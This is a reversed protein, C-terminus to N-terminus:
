AEDGNAAPTILESDAPVDMKDVTDMPSDVFARLLSRFM